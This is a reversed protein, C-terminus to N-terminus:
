ASAKYKAGIRQRAASDRPATPGFAIRGDPKIALIRCALGDFVEVAAQVQDALTQLRNEETAQRTTLDASKKKLADLSTQAATKATIASDRAKEEDVREKKVAALADKERNSAQRTTDLETKTDHLEIAVANVDRNLADCMETLTQRKEILADIEATAAATVTRAEEQAAAVIRKAEDEAAARIAAADAEATGRVQAALLESERTRRTNEESLRAATKQLLAIREAAAVRKRAIRAEDRIRAKLARAERRRLTKMAAQWDELRAAAAADAERRARERETARYFSPPVHVPPVPKILGLSDPDEGDLEAARCKDKHDRRAAAHRKGRELGLPAFHAGALDQAHEYSHLLPNVDPRLLLQWGRTKSYRTEWVAVLFHIHFAEEDAHSSAFILQDDPFHTKLFDMAMSRFAEVKDPNWAATGTGGFWAKHVTLLGERLPTDTNGHWPPSPPDRDLAAAAAKRRRARLAAVEQVHNGHAAFEIRELLRPIASAEGHEIRNLQSAARDVHVLDGDKRQDHKLFRWLDNPGISRFRLVIPFRRQHPALRPNVPWAAAFTMMNISM